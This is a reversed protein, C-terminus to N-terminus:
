SINKTSHQHSRSIKLKHDTRIRNSVYHPFIQTSSVFNSPLSDGVLLGINSSRFISVNFPDVVGNQKFLVNFDLLNTERVFGYENRRQDRQDTAANLRSLQLM